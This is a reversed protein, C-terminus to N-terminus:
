GKFIRMLWPLRNVRIFPYNEMVPNFHRYFAAIGEVDSGEFDLVVESGSYEQILCDYLFYNGRQLRGKDTVCPIMNYMRQKDVLLVAAAVLENERSMVQRVVLKNEQFLKKCIESFHAYDLESFSPLRKAYLTKYLDLIGEFDSSPEYRLGSNRARKINKITTKTFAEFLQGYEAALPLIYNKRWSGNGSKVEPLANLHNLTIEAFRFHACAQEIFAEVAPKSLGGRFFVGGQQLFAPQYLYRVGWKKRWTLPMVAEYDNLVLADWNDAMADLYFYKAYILGNEADDICADWKQQDIQGYTLYSIDL